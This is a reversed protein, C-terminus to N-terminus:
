SSEEPPPPIRGPRDEGAALPRELGAKLEVLAVAYPQTFKGVWRAAIATIPVPNLHHRKERGARVAVVLGASELVALHKMVGFRTLQPHRRTLQALTQGDDAFLADLLDRRTPDALAKFVEDDGPAPPMSAM